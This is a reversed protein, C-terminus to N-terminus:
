KAEKGENKSEAKPAKADVAPAGVAASPGRTAAKGDLWKLELKKPAGTADSAKGSEAPKAPLDTKEDTKGANLKPVLIITVPTGSRPIHETFAEYLLDDNGSTSPVPVDLLATVSNAVCILNGDHDALCFDEPPNGPKIIRSGGFVWPQDMAKKTKVDRIWDQARASQIKGAEDKWLVTVEIETGHAPVYKPLFRAPAGAEAGLELLGTRLAIASIPATVVSEYDRSRWKCAFLEVPGQKQTVLGVLVVRKGEKDLWLPCPRPALWTLREPQEVLPEMNPLSERSPGSGPQDTPLVGSSTAESGVPKSKTEPTTVLSRPGPLSDQRTALPVKPTGSETGPKAPELVPKAPETGPKAPETEPKASEMGPKAPETGPKAPETGPKSPELSTRKDVPREPGATVTLPPAHASALVKGVGRDEATQGPLVPKSFQLVEVTHGLLGAKTVQLTIDVRFSSGPALDALNNEVQKPSQVHKLGPEFRDVILLNALTASTRNTVVFQYIVEEGVAATEPGTITLELIPVRATVQGAVPVGGRFAPPGSDQGLSGTEGALAVVLAVVTAVLFEQAM